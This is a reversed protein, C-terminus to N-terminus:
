PIGNVPESLSRPRAAQGCAARRRSGPRRRDGARGQRGTGVRHSMPATPARNQVVSTHYMVPMSTPATMSRILSSRSPPSSSVDLVEILIGTARLSAAASATLSSPMAGDVVVRVVVASRAVRSAATM